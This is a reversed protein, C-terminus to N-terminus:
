DAIGITGRYEVRVGPTHGLTDYRCGICFIDHRPQPDDGAFWRAFALVKVVTKCAPCRFRRKAKSM